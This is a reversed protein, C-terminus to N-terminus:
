RKPPPSENYPVKARLENLIDEYAPDEALNQWEYPDVRRDYLEETRNPYTIYRWDKTRISNHRRRRISLAHSDDTRRVNEMYPTLSRGDLISPAQTDTLACLTPYLDVLTVIEKSRSGPTTVGPAIVMFPIHTSEEWLSLKRWHQKSGLHFGHDSMLVVITNRSALSNDLADMVRGIQSDTWAVCAMYAQVADEWQNSETIAAHDGFNVIKSAAFPTDDTDNELVLPIRNNPTADFYRAPALWPLHPRYFGAVLCFPTEDTRTQLENVTWSAIKHDFFEEDPNPMGRWDLKNPRNTKPPLDNKIQGNYKLTPGYSDWAEAQRRHFTKGGGGVYYGNARFHEPITVANALLESDRMYSANHYIGSSSPLTGTLFSVRSPHCITANCHADSFLVGRSAIADMNPTAAKVDNSMCSPSANLDDVILILVNMPRDGPLLEGLLRFEVEPGGIHAEMLALDDTRSIEETVVGTSRWQGRKFIQPVIRVDERDTRVVYRIRWRDDISEPHLDFVEPHTPSTGLAYEALNSVGDSDYDKQIGIRGPDNSDSLESELWSEITTLPVEHRKLVLDNGDGGDYALEYHPDGIINVQSFGGDIDRGSQNDILLIEDPTGGLQEINVILTGSLVLKHTVSHDPVGNADAIIELTAQGTGHTWTQSNITATSGRTIFHGASTPGNALQISQGVSLVGGKIEYVGASRGKEGVRLSKTVQCITSGAQLVAGSGNQAGVFMRGSDPFNSAPNVFLNGSGTLKLTASEGTGVRLHGAHGAGGSIKATGSGIRAVNSATPTQPDWKGSANWGGVGGNWEVADQAICTSTLVTLLTFFKSM